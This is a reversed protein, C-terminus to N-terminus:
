HGFTSGTAPQEEHPRSFAVERVAQSQDVSVAVSRDGREEKIYTSVGYLRCLNLLTLPVQTRCLM